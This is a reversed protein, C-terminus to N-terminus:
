IGMASLDSVLTRILTSLSPHSTELEVAHRDLREGLGEASESDLASRVDAHAGDVGTASDRHPHLEAAADELRRRINSEM